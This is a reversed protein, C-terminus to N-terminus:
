PLLIAADLGSSSAGVRTFEADDFAASTVKRISPLNDAKEMAMM